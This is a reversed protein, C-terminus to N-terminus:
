KRFFHWPFSVECSGKVQNFLLFPILFALLFSRLFCIDMEGRIGLLSLVACAAVSGPEILFPNFLHRTFGESCPCTGSILQFRFLIFFWAGINGLSNKLKMEKIRIQTM